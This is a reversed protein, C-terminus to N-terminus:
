SFDHYREFIKNMAEECKIRNEVEACQQHLYDLDKEYRAIQSHLITVNEEYVKDFQEFEQAMEITMSNTQILRHFEKVMSDKQACWSNLNFKTNQLLLRTHQVSMYLENRREYLDM